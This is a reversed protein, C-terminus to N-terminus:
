KKDEEKPFEAMLVERLGGGCSKVDANQENCNGIETAEIITEIGNKYKLLANMLNSEFTLHHQVCAGEKGLHQWVHCPTEDENFDIVIHLKGCGTKRWRKDGLDKAGMTKSKWEDIM